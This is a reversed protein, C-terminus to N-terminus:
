PRKLQWEARTTDLALPSMGSRHVAAVAGVSPITVLRLTGVLNAPILPSIRAPSGLARLRSTSARCIGSSSSPATTDADMRATDLRYPEVLVCTAMGVTITTAM